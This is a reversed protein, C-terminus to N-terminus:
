RVRRACATCATCATGRVWLNLLIPAWQMTSEFMMQTYTLLLTAAHHYWHLFPVPRKRAIMLFTDVFEYIKTLYNIFYLFQLPGNRHMDLSCLTYHLGHKTGQRLAEMFLATGLLASLWVLFMNHTRMARTCPIPERDRMFRQAAHVSVVYAVVMSTVFLPHTLPTIGPEFRFTEVGPVLSAVTLKSANMVSASDPACRRPFPPRPLACTFTRVSGVCDLHTRM